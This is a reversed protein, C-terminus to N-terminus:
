HGAAARKLMKRATTGFFVGLILGYILHGMLSKWQMTEIVFVMENMGLFLPMLVLAGLMWWVVGWILGTALGTGVNKVMPGVIVVYGLGLGASIVLHVAWGMVISTQGILMAVMPLMDEIQMLIGFAVGGILGGVIGPVARAMVAQM